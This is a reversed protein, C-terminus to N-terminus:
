RARTPFNADVKEVWGGVEIGHLVRGETRGPHLDRLDTQAAHAEPAAVLPHEVLVLRAFEDLAGDVQTDVEEVRRVDVRRALGLLDESVHQGVVVPVFLDDRGFDAPGARRLVAVRLAQRSLGDLLFEGVREVSQPHVSDVEVLDV